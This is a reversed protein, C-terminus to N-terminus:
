RQKITPSLWFGPADDLEYLVYGGHYFTPRTVKTKVGAYHLQEESPRAVFKWYNRFKELTERDVIVIKEGTEFQPKWLGKAGYNEEVTFEVL